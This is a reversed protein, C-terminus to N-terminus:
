KKNVKNETEEYREFKKGYNIEVNSPLDQILFSRLESRDVLASVKEKKNM